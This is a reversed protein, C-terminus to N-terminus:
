GVRSEIELIRFISLVAALVLIVGYILAFLGVSGAIMNVTLTIQPDCSSFPKAAYIFAIVVAAIQVIVAHSISSALILLPSRGGLKDSPRKLANRTNEDMVAFFLAYAAVSFGALQPLVDKAIDPWKQEPVYRWCLAAVGVSMWFYASGLLSKVGGYSKYLINLNQFFGTSNSV